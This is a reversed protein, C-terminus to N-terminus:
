QSKKRALSQVGVLQNVSEIQIDCIVFVRLGLLVKVLLELCVHQGGLSQTSSLLGDKSFDLLLDLLVPDVVAIHAKPRGFERLCLFPPFSILILSALTLSARIDRLSYAVFVALLVRRGIFTGPNVVLNPDHLLGGNLIHSLIQTGRTVRVPKYSTHTETAHSKM